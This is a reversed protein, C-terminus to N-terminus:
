RRLALFTDKDDDDCLSVFVDTTTGCKLLLLARSTDESHQCPRFLAVFVRYKTTSNVEQTMATISVPEFFIEDLRPLDFPRQFTYTDVTTQHLSNEGTPKILFTTVYKTQLGFFILFTGLYIDFWFQRDLDYRSSCFITPRPLYRRTLMQVLGFNYVLASDIELRPTPFGLSQVVFPQNDCLMNSPSGIFRHYQGIGSVTFCHFSYYQCFAICHEHDVGSERQRGIQM